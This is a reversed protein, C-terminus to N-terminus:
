SVNDKFSQRSLLCLFVVALISSLILGGFILTLATGTFSELFYEEQGHPLTAPDPRAAFPGILAMVAAVVSWVIRSAAWGIGLRAGWKRQKLLGVGAAFLLAALVANAAGDLYAAVESFGTLLQPAKYRELMQQIAAPQLLAWFATVLSIGGFVVGLVGLATLGGTKKGELEPM